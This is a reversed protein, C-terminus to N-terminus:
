VGQSRDEIIVLHWMLVSCRAAKSRYIRVQAPEFAGVNESGPLINEPGRTVDLLPPLVQRQKKLRPDLLGPVRNRPVPNLFTGPVVIPTPHVAGHLEHPIGPKRWDEIRKM